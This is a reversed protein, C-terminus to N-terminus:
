LKWVVGVTGKKYVGFNFKFYFKNFLSFMM